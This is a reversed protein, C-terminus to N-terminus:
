FKLIEKIRKGFTKLSKKMSNSEPISLIYKEFNTKNRGTNNSENGWANDNNRAGLSVRARLLKEGKDTLKYGGSEDIKIYWLRNL